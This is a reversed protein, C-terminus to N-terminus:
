DSEPLRDASRWLPDGSTRAEARRGGAGSAPVSAPSPPQWGTVFGIWQRVDERFRAAGFQAAREVCAWATFRGAEREFVELAAALVGADARPVFIGTPDALATGDGTALARGTEDLWLGRVTELAGGAGLAIVPMGCAMAELPVLGFDEEGPFILARCTRYLRAVEADSVTGLFEVESGARRELSRRLPGDGAILLRRGSGRFAEVALDPRKYPVLQGVWLYDGGRDTAPGALQTFRELDVPPPLVTADRRYHRRIRERGATSSTAFAGVELAASRDVSRLARLALRAPPRLLAPLQARLYTEPFDFAWRMPAYCYCLHVADRDIRVGKVCAADSSLVLDFGRLDLSRVAAPYLPALRDHWRRLPDLRSVRVEHRDIPAPMGRGDGFLTFIPAAPFIRGLQALVREGGRPTVLWHHVLAVRPPVRRLATFGEPLAWPAAPAVAAM